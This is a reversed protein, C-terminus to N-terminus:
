PIAPSSGDRIEYSFGGGETTAHVFRDYAPAQVRDLLPFEFVSSAVVPVAGRPPADLPLGLLSVIADPAEALAARWDASQMLEGTEEFRPGPELRRIEPAAGRKRLLKALRDAAVLDEESMFESPAPALVLVRRAEPAVEAVERALVEALEEQVERLVRNSDPRAAWPKNIWLALAGLALVAALM